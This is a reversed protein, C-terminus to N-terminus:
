KSKKDYRIIAIIISIVASCECVVGPISLTFIDYAMWFPSAFLASYKRVKSVDKLSFIYSSTILAIVPLIEFLAKPFTFETGGVTFTLVYCVLASAMFFYTLYKSDAFRYKGKLSYVYSRTACIINIICGMIGGLLTYHIMWLANGIFQITMISKASKGQFSYASFFAAVVGIVQAIIFQPM